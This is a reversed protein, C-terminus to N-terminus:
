YIKDDHTDGCNNDGCDPSNFVLTSNGDSEREVSIRLTMTQYLM